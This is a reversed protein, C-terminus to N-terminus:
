GVRVGNGDFWHLHQPEVHLCVTDGPRPPVLTGDIRLTFMAGAPDGGLKGYVLREAGLMEIMEVKLPWGGSPQIEIGATQRALADINNVGSNRLDEGSIAVLSLGARQASESRRQATVVIDTLGGEDDQEGQAPAQAATAAPADQAMAPTVCGLAIALGSAGILYRRM